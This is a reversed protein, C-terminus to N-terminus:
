RPVTKGAKEYQQRIGTLLHEQTVIRGNAAAIYAADLTADRIQAGTLPYRHALATLEVGADMPLQSPAVKAWLREREAPGPEPFELVVHIRRLFAADINAVLNTTLIVIGPHQEVRSLLYSVEQNAYRDHADSVETRSGFVADAEDFVLICRERSARDFVKALAKETEGIYKSVLASLDILYAPLKASAALAAATMTKGTGPPGHFLAILGTANDHHAGFGWEGVVTDRHAIRAELDEIRARAPAPLVVDALTHVTRLLRAPFEASVTQAEEPLGLLWHLLASDPRLIGCLDGPPDLTLMGLARLKGQACLMATADLRGHFSRAVITRAVEGTLTTVGPRDTLAGYLGCFREDAYPAIAAILVMAEATSLDAIAITEALPGVGCLRGRDPLGEGADEIGLPRRTPGGCREEIRVQILADLMEFAARLETIPAPITTM